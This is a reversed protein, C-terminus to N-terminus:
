SFCVFVATSVASFLTSTAGSVGAGASTATVRCTGNTAPATYLGAQSISGCDVSWTVSTTATGTVTARFAVTGSPEVLASPPDVHVGVSAAAAEQSGGSGCGSATLLVMPLFAPLVAVMRMLLGRTHHPEVPPTGRELTKHDPRCSIFMISEERGLGWPPPFLHM